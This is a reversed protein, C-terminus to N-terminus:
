LHSTNLFFEEHQNVQAPVSHSNFSLDGSEESSGTWNKLLHTVTYLIVNKFEESAVDCPYSAQIRYVTYTSISHTFCTAISTAATAASSLLSLIQERCLQTKLSILHGSAM